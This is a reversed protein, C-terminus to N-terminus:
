LGQVKIGAGGPDGPPKVLMDQIADMLPDVTDDHAASPFLSMEHLLDLLCPHSSPLMVNGVQMMPAADYARTIKDTNRKIAGVPIGGQKLQQILGTGSAKDEIRMQRLTAGHQQKCKDWFARAHMLLQPAEWRGRIMDLLYIKGDRGKGWHQFVSFDNEQGTKMATDAYIMRYEFDPLAAWHQVWESKFVGGGKPAPQQQYQGAFRYVNTAELRKLDDIPFQEPWFSHGQDNIAPICIHEWQEGNGNRLLFGSLDDEHLRQMILIIPTDPSNKRSEMTTSFWDLVNQRMTESDGEGAKHPDDIIIAGGFTKRMKGAGYGTITGENGTAYVVGGQSTRFEDKANSDDRLNPSGFIGAHAEHQMIARANFTNNTALRKSYSAHIFESDPFNGMCWAIFNIVALETKGSRPPVNIILRKTKGVVVRELATCIVAQHDNEKMDVGKRAHFMFRAYALLDTRLHAIQDSTM